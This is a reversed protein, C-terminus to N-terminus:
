DSRRHDGAPPASQGGSGGEARAGSHCQGPFRQQHGSHCSRQRPLYGRALASGRQCLLYRVGALPASNPYLSATPFGGAPTQTQARRARAIHRPDRQSSARLRRLGPLPRGSLARAPAPGRRPFARDCRCDGDSRIRARAAPRRGGHCQLHETRRSAPHLLRWSSAKTGSTSAPSLVARRRRPPIRSLSPAIFPWRTGATSVARSNRAFLEALRPDDACFILRGRTNEGFQSFEASIAELNAFYDLHEADVNLVVGYEPRFLRLTGDSEDAEVAFYAQAASARNPAAFRAHPQLQPVLAGVAYSPQAELRTLAYALLATTTTKGHMGAVCIACQRHALAALLVARRVTPLNLETAAVLEPNNPRIASSYVVLVPRSQLHAASHSAHIRAGRAQLQRVEENVLLDAGAVAFGLDLLLHGLGSMGCGGAGILYVTSGTGASKLLLDVQDPPLSNMM